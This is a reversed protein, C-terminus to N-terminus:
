HWVVGCDSGDRCLKFGKGGKVLRWNDEKPAVFQPQAYVNMTFRCYRGLKQPTKVVSAEAIPQKGHQVACLGDDGFWLSTAIKITKASDASQDKGVPFPKSQEPLIKGRSPTLPMENEKRMFVVGYKSGYIISESIDVEGGDIWLAANSKAAEPHSVITCHRLFAGKCGEVLLGRFFCNEFTLNTSAFVRCVDGDFFCEKITANGPGAQLKDSSSPQIVLSGSKIKINSVSVASAVIEIGNELVVGDEGQISVGGVIVRFLKAGSTQGSPPHKAPAATGADAAASLSYVGKKLVIVANEETRALADALQRGLSM